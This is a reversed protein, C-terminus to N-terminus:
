SFLAGSQRTELHLHQKAKNTLIRGRPTRELLGSQILYPEYVDEVTDRDEGLIAAMTEIGLPGGGYKNALAELLQRDMEDLGLEDLKMLTFTEELAKRDVKGQNRAVAYDIIRKLLRNAIRPIGRARQAIDQALKESIPTGYIRATRLIIRVIEEPTYFGLRFVLGFRDRLPNTLMGARTTAGVMTFPALPVEIAKATLGKGLTIHLRFDEMAPYLTEEAAKSLRHIEDIFFVDGKQLSAVITALDRPSTIAPGTTRWLKSGMEHAVVAAITTKGMGPPGYLLIHDIPAQRIKAAEIGIRLAEKVEEQGIYEELTQPRLQQDEEAKQILQKVTQSV